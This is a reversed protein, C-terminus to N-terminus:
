ALGNEIGNTFEPGQLQGFCGAVLVLFLPLRRM